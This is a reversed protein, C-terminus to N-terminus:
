PPSILATASRQIDKYLLQVYKKETVICFAAYWTQQSISSHLEFTPFSHSHTLCSSDVIDSHEFTEMSGWQPHFVGESSISPFFLYMKLSSEEGALLVTLLAKWFM